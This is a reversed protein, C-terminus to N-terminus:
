NLAELERRAANASRRCQAASSRASSAAHEYSELQSRLAACEAELETVLRQASDVSEIARDKMGIGLSNVASTVAGYNLSRSLTIAFSDLAGEYDAQRASVTDCLRKTVRAKRLQELKYNLENRTANALSDFHSAQGDFSRARSSNYNISSQLSERSM